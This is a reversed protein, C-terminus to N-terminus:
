RGESAAFQTELTRQLRALQDAVTTRAKMTVIKRALRGFVGSFVDVRSRNLYAVYTVPDASLDLVGSGSIDAVTVDTSELRGRFSVPMPADVRPQRGDAAMDLISSTRGTAEDHFHFAGDRVRLMAVQFAPRAAPAPSVGGAEAPPVGKAGLRAASWDEVPRFADTAVARAARGLWSAGAALLFARRSLAPGIM